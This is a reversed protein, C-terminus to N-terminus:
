VQRINEFHPAMPNRFYEAAEPNRKLMEAVDLSKRSALQRRVEELEPGNILEEMRAPSQPSLHMRSGGEVGFRKAMRPIRKGVEELAHIGQLGTMGPRLVNLGAKAGVVGLLENTIALKRLVRDAIQSATKRFSSEKKHENMSGYFFRSGRRGERETPTMVGGFPNWANSGERHKKAVYAMHRPDEPDENLMLRLAKGINGFHMGGEEDRHGRAGFREQLAMLEEAARQRIEAAEADYKHGADTVALAQKAWESATKHM